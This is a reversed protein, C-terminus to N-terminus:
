SASGLLTWVASAATADVSAPAIFSLVSGVAVTQITGGATVFTFAGGTGITITGISVGDDQVDIAFSATPNTDINGISGVFNVPFVLTRAIMIKELIQSTTPTAEFGSSVDYFSNVWEANYNTGDIKSLMQGATGGQSVLGADVVCRLTMKIPAGLTGDYVTDTLAPAVSAYRIGGTSIDWLGEPDDRRTANPFSSSLSTTATADTRVFIIGYPVGATMAIGQGPLIYMTGNAPNTVGLTGVPHLVDVITGPDVESLEVVALDVDQTPAAGLVRFEVERLLINFNPTIIAGKSAFLSASTTDTGDNTQSYSGFVVPGTPGDAGAPGILSVGTPWTGSAKPGFITDTDTRYYFDGDKGETTPDVTGSLIGSGIGDAVFVIDYVLDM